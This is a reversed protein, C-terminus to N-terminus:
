WEGGVSERLGCIGITSWRLELLVAMMASL